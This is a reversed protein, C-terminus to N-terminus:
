YIRPKHVVSDIDLVTIEGDRGVNGDDLTGACQHCNFITKLYKKELLPPILDYFKREGPYKARYFEYLGKTGKLSNCGGCAWIQNHIGQIVDCTGCEPRIALSKPVIHERHLEAESGCYICRKDAEVFQWDERMIDSWSKIGNQLEQFTKNIFGFHKKKAEKGDATGFARRAIIKAYQYYILDRITKANRIPM